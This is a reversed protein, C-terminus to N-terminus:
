AADKRPRGRPRVQRGGPMGAAAWAEPLLEPHAALLRLLIIGETPIRSDGSKRRRVTSGTLGILDAYALQSLGAMDLCDQFEKKTMKESSKAM